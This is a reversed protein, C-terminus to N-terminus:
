AFRWLGGHLWVSQTLLQPWSATHLLSVAKHSVAHRIPGGGGVGPPSKTTAILSLTRKNFYLPHFSVFQFGIFVRNRWLCFPPGSSLGWPEAPHGAFETPILLHTTIWVNAPGTHDCSLCEWQRATVANRSPPSQATYTQTLKLFLYVWACKSGWVRLLCCM